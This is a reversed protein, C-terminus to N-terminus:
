GSQDGRAQLAVQELGRTRDDTITVFEHDIPVQTVPELGPIQVTAVARSEAAEVVIQDVVLGELPPGLQEGPVAQLIGSARQALLELLQPIQDLRAERRDVAADEGALIPEHAHLVPLGNPLPRNARFLRHGALREEVHDLTEVDVRQQQEDIPADAEHLGELVHEPAIPFRGRRLRGDDGAQHCVGGVNPEAAHGVDAIQAILLERGGGTVVDPQFGELLRVVAEGVRGCPEGDKAVEVDILRHVRAAVPLLELGRNRGDVGAVRRFVEAQVLAHDGVRQQGVMHWEVGADDAGFSCSLWKTKSIRNLLAV